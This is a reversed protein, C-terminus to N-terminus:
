KLTGSIMRKMIIKPQKIPRILPNITVLSFTAGNMAVSPVIYMQRPKALRREPPVVKELM